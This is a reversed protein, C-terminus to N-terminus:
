DYKRILKERTRKPLKWWVGAVITDISKRYSKLSERAKRPYEASMRTWMTAWWKAPPRPNPMGMRKSAIASDVHADHMHILHERHVSSDAERAGKLLEKARKTHWAEGPNTSRAYSTGYVEEGYHGCKVCRYAFYLMGGRTEGDSSLYRIDDSGCKTCRWEMEDCSHGKPNVFATQRRTLGVKKFNYCTKHFFERGRGTKIGGAYVPKHCYDCIGKPHSRRERWIRKMVKSRDIM